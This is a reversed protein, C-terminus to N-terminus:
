VYRWYKSVCEISLDVGEVKSRGDENGKYLFFFSSNKLLLFIQQFLQTLSDMLAYLLDRSTWFYANNVYGGVITV